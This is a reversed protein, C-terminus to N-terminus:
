DESLRITKPIKRTTIVVEYDCKQGEYVWRKGDHNLYGEARLESYLLHNVINEGYDTM